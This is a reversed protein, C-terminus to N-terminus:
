EPPFCTDRLLSTAVLEPPADYFNIRPGDPSNPLKKRVPNKILHPVPGLDKGSSDSDFREQVVYTETSCNLKFLLYQSAYESTADGSKAQRVLRIWFVPNKYNEDLGSIMKSEMRYKGFSDQNQTLFSYSTTPPPALTPAALGSSSACAAMIGATIAVVAKM